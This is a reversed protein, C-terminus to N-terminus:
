RSADPDQRVSVAAQAVPPAQAVLHRLDQEWGKLKGRARQRQAATTSNHVDAIWECQSAMAAANPGRADWRPGQLRALIQGLLQRARERDAREDVLRKMAQLVEAQRELRQAYWQEPNGSAVRLGAAVRQRQADDLRGYVTEFRDITREISAKAREQPDAALFDERWKRNSREFRKRLHEVQAATVLPALDAAMPLTQRTIVEVRSRVEDAWACVQAGTVSGAMEGHARALLAAYDPLQTRRHWAFWRELAERVRPSQADDLDLYGDLWWMTLQPAQNYGLRVASCGALTVLAGLGAVIIARRMWRM